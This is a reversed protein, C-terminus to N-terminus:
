LSNKFPKDSRVQLFRRLLKENENTPKYSKSLKVEQKGTKFNITTTKINIGESNKKAMIPITEIKVTRDRYM